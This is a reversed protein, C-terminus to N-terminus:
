LGEAPHPPVTPPPADPDMLVRTLPDAGGWAPRDFIATWVLHQSERRALTRMADRAFESPCSYLGVILGPPRNCYFVRRRDHADVLTEAGHPGDPAQHFEVDEVVSGHAPDGRAPGDEPGPVSLMLRAMTMCYSHTLPGSLLNRPCHRVCLLGVDDFMRRGVIVGLQLSLSWAESTEFMLGGVATRPTSM